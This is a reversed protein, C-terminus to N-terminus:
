SSLSPRMPSPTGLLGPAMFHLLAPLPCHCPSPGPLDPCLHASPSPASSTAQPLARTLMLSLLFARAEPTQLHTLPLPAALPSQSAEPLPPPEAATWDFEPGPGPGWLGGEGLGGTKGPKPPSVSPSNHAM